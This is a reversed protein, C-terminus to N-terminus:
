ERLGQTSSAPAGDIISLEYRRHLGSRSPTPVDAFYVHDEPPPPESPDRHGADSRTFNELSLSRSGEHEAILRWFYSIPTEYANITSICELDLINSPPVTTDGRKM